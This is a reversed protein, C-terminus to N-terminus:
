KQWDLFSLLLASLTSYVSFLKLELINNSEDFDLNFVHRKYIKKNAQM